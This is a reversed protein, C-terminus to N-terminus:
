AQLDAFEPHRKMYALAYECIPSVKLGRDRVISLVGEMLRAAAGTGRLGIPAEVHSLIIKDGQTRYDAFATQGHEVLEFRQRDRNDIVDHM